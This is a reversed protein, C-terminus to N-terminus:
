YIFTIVLIINCSISFSVRIKFVTIISFSLAVIHKNAIVCTRINRTLAEATNSAFM